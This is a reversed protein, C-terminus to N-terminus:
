RLQIAVYIDDGVDAATLSSTATAAPIDITGDPGGSVIRVDRLAAASDVDQIEIEGNWADIVYPSGATVVNGTSEVLYPGRWGIRTNIDFDVTSDGTVPNAFLWDTDFRNAETAVTTIGDLTVHKTDNWYDIVSDRVEALSRKTAVQNADHIVTSFMPVLLTALAALLSIVVLLEILSVAARYRM